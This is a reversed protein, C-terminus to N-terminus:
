AMNHIVSSSLLETDVATGLGKAHHYLHINLVCSTCPPPLPRNSRQTNNSIYSIFHLPVETPISLM